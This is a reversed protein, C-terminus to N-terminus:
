MLTITESMGKLNERSERPNDGAFERNGGGGPWSRAPDGGGGRAFGPPIKLSGGSVRPIVRYIKPVLGGFFSNEDDPDFNNFLLSFFFHIFTM